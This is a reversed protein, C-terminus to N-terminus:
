REVTPSLANLKDLIVYLSKYVLYLTTFFAIGPILSLIVILVVNLKLRPALYGNGIAFAIQAIFLPLLPMAHMGYMGNDMDAWQNM